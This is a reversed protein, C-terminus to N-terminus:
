ERAPLREPEGYVTGGSSLYTLTVEPRSRLAEVVARVPTLTLRADLEPDRESAAPLLGGASFIVHGVGELARDLCERDAADGLHLDGTALLRVISEDPRSRTVVVPTCGSAAFEEVIHSGIFGCGIVLIRPGPGGGTPGGQTPANSVTASYRNGRSPLRPQVSVRM